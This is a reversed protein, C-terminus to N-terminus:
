VLYPMREEGEAISKTFNKWKVRQETGNLHAPHRFMNQVREADDVHKLM